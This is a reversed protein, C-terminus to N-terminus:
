ECAIHRLWGRTVDQGRSCNLLRKSEQFSIGIEIAAFLCDPSTFLSFLERNM